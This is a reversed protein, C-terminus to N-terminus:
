MAQLIELTFIIFAKNFANPSFMLKATAERLPFASREAVHVTALWKLKM